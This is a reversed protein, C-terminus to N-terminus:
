RTAAGGIPLAVSVATGRGPPSAVTISGGAAAVRDALGVLGTGRTPDAGGAGDDRVELRLADRDDVALVEVSTAGAHKVANTLAEAIVFYATTEVGAPLRNATVEVGVPLNVHAVLSEVAARLGGRTLAAPMIGHVLEGLEATARQALQLADDILETAAAADTAVAAKALKLQIVTHVLRQQAGDHLDRQIRRRTDDSAAVVRARSATLEARSETNAIATAALEAFQALRDETRPPLPYDFSMALLLGWVEGGVVIPAGVAARVGFAHAVVSAPGMANAYCDVRAPRATRLVRGAVSEGGAAIYAGQGGPVGHEAVVTVGGQRDYRQLAMPRWGLLRSAEETVAAFIQPQSGGRAVLTAVHRLAEQEEALSRLEARAQANSISTAVLETFAAIRAETDPPFPDAGTTSVFSAGWVRGDVVVPVGVWSRVGRRRAEEVFAGTAPLEAPGFRVPRAEDRITRLAADLRRNAGVTTTAPAVVSWAAVVTVTEDPEFRMMATQEAGVLRAIWDNVAAFLEEQAVGRAVLTAVHRLAVQRDAIRAAETRSPLLAVDTKDAGDTLYYSHCSVIRGDRVRYIDCVSGALHWGSEDQDPNVLRYEVVITDATEAVVNELEARLGPFARVTGAAFALAAARGRMLGADARVEVDECLLDAWTAFDRENYAHLYREVLSRLATM